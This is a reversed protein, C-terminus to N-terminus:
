FGVGMLPHLGYLSELESTTITTPLGTDTGVQVSTRMQLSNFASIDTVYVYNGGQADNKMARLGVSSSTTGQAIALWYLTNTSVATTSIGASYFGTGVGSQLGSEVLLSDPSGNSNASYIGLKGTFSGSNISYQINTLSVAKPFIIPVFHVYSNNWTYTSTSMTNGGFSGGSAMLTDFSSGMDGASHPISSGSGGSAAITVTSGAGGDTITIGSGATLVRENTLTGNLTMVVYEADTPAGGGGGGGTLFGDWDGRVAMRALQVLVLRRMEDENEPEIFIKEAVAQFQAYSLNELDTEKLLEYIRQSYDPADPLPM